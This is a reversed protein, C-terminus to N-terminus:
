YCTPQQDELGLYSCHLSQEKQFMQKKTNPEEIVMTTDDKKNLNQVERRKLSVSFSLLM